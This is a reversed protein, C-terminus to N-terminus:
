PCVTIPVTCADCILLKQGPLKFKLKFHSVAPPYSLHLPFLFFLLLVATVLAILLPWVLQSIVSLHNRDSGCLCAQLFSKFYFHPNKFTKEVCFHSCSFFSMTQTFFAVFLCDSAPIRVLMATSIKMRLTYICSCILHSYDKSTKFTVLVQEFHSRWYPPNTNAKQPLSCWLSKYM